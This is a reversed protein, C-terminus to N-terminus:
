RWRADYHNFYDQSTGLPVIRKPPRFCRYFSGPLCRKGIDDSGILFALPFFNAFIPIIFSSWEKAVAFEAMTQYFSNAVFVLAFIHSSLTISYAVVIPIILKTMRINEILQYRGSLSNEANRRKKYSLIVTAVSIIFCFLCFPLQIRTLHNFDHASSSLSSCYPIYEDKPM